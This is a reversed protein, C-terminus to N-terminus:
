TNRVGTGHLMTFDHIGQFSLHGASMGGDVIQVQGSIWAAEASALFLVISAVDALQGLRGVPVEALYRQKYEASINMEDRQAETEVLGPAVANVTIGYGGLEMALVKTLMTLGAKSASHAGGKVRGMLAAVSSINVIRGAIQQDIMHRAVYKSLLFPATLQVAIQRDWTERDMEILLKHAVVGANNILIDIRGCEAITQAVVAAVQAEDAVDTAIALAKGGSATIAAAAREGAAANIDAIVVTAGEAAFRRAIEQGIGNGAGTVLAVQKEFRM